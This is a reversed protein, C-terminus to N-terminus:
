LKARWEADAEQRTKLRAGHRELMAAIEKLTTRGIGQVVWLDDKTMERLQHVTHIPPRHRLLANLARISLECLEEDVNGTAAEIAADQEERLLDGLLETLAARCAPKAVADEIGSAILANVAEQFSHRVREKALAVLARSLEADAM